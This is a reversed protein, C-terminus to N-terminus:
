FLQAFLQLLYGSLLAILFVFFVFIVIFSRRFIANMFLIGNISTGAASIIFAIGPGVAGTSRIFPAVVSITTATCAYVPVGALAAVFVDFPAGAMLVKEIQQPSVQSDILTAFLIAAFAFPLIRKVTNWTNDWASRLYPSEVSINQATNM